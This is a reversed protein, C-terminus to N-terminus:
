SITIGNTELWNLQKEYNPMHKSLLNWFRDSHEKIKLHCLEHLVVYNIVSQPAKLLNSNLNIQGQETTSGWRGKLQKVVIKRPKVSLKKSFKEIARAFIKEAKAKLWRQYMQSIQKTTHRKQKIHFEIFKGSVKVKEQSNPIIKISYIKGRFPIKSGKAFTIKSKEYKQERFYLQKKFIWQAKAKVIKRAHDKTKTQPIRVTIGNTDVTIQSTKSRKSRVVDYVIVSNGYNFKATM